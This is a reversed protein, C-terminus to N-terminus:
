SISKTYHHICYFVSICVCLSAPGINRLKSIYPSDKLKLLISIENLLRQIRHLKIGPGLLNKFEKIRVKVKDDEATYINMKDDSHIKKVSQYKALYSKTEM